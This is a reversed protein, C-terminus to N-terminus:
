SRSGTAAAAGDSRSGVPAEAIMRAPTRAVADAMVAAPALAHHRFRDAMPNKVRNITGIEDPVLDWLGMTLRYHELPEQGYRHTWEYMDTVPWWTYGVIDRGEAHLRRVLGVSADMWRVRDEVSGTLCTETVMVPAGYREGYVRIVDELGDTWDNRLAWPDLIDGRRPKCACSTLILAFVRGPLPGSAGGPIPSAQFRM